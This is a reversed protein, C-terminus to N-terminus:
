ADHADVGDLVSRYRPPQGNMVLADNVEAKLELIRGERGIAGVRWRQLEDVQRRLDLDARRRDTVDHVISERHDVGDIVVTRTSIEVLFTTGDRRRHATEVLDGEPVALAGVVAAPTRVPGAADPPRLQQLTMTRFTDADYGYAAIAAANVEVIRGAQDVLLVIETARALLRDYREAADTRHREAVLIRGLLRRQRVVHVLVGALALLSAAVCLALFWPGSAAALRLSEILVQRRVARQALSSFSAGDGLTSM